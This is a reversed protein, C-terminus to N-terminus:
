LRLLLIPCPYLYGKFVKEITTTPESQNIGGNKQTPGARQEPRGPPKARVESAETKAWGGGEGDAEEPFDDPPIFGGM